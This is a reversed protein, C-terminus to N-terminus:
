EIEGKVLQRLIMEARRTTMRGYYEKDVVMVPSIACTGLCAVTEFSFMMDETTEGDDIGLTSKVTDIIKRGGGVHCSTGRCCTVNHKGQPETYFQSYFTIVGFMRSTPIKTQGSLWTLVPVPLYGYAEQVKQLLPILDGAADHGPTWDERIVELIRKAPELDM